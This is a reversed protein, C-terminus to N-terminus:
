PLGGECLRHYELMNPPQFYGRYFDISQEVRQLDDMYAAYKDSESSPEPDLWNIECSHRKGRPPTWDDYSCWCWGLRSGAQIIQLEFPPLPRGIERDYWDPSDESLDWYFAKSLKNKEFQDKEFLKPPRQLLLYITHMFDPVDSIRQFKYGIGGHVTRPLALSELAPFDHEGIDRIDGAVQNYELDLEKLRPFDALNLFNGTIGRCNCITMNELTGKLVRVSRLNGTLHRNVRMKLEKLLPFSALMDLDWKLNHCSTIVLRQLNPFNYLSPYRGNLLRAEHIELVRLKRFNSIINIDHTTYNSTAEAMREVLDEGDSYKNGRGLYSIKLQQFNPLATAMVRMANYSRVSDVEFDSPPVITKKAADRWTTCVRRVRMIDQHPLYGFIIAVADASLQEVTDNAEASLEEATEEVTDDSLALSMESASDTEPAFSTSSHLLLLLLMVYLDATSLSFPPQDGGNSSTNNNDNSSM